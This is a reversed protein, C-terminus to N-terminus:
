GRTIRRLAYASGAFGAAMAAAMALPGDAAFPATLTGALAGFAFSGAGILASIAGARQPM